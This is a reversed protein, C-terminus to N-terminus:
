AIQLSGALSPPLQLCLDFDFPEGENLTKWVEEKLPEMLKFIEEENGIMRLFEKAAEGHRKPRKNMEVTKGLGGPVVTPFSIRDELKRFVYRLHKWEKNTVTFSRSEDRSSLFEEVFECRDCIVKKTCLMRALSSKGRKVLKDGLRFGLCMGVLFRYFVFFPPQFITLGYQDLLSRLSRSLPRLFLDFKVQVDGPIFFVDFLVDGCRASSFRLCIEVLMVTRRVHVEANHRVDDALDPPVLAYVAGESVLPTMASICCDLM